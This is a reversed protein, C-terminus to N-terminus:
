KKLTVEKGIETTPDIFVLQKVKKESDSALLTAGTNHALEWEVNGEATFFVITSECGKLEKDLTEALLTLDPGGLGTERRKATGGKFPWVASGLKKDVSAVVSCPLPAVKIQQVPTLVIEKAVDNRAKFAKVRITAVGGTGLENILVAMDEVPVALKEKEVLVTVEKGSLPLGSVIKHLKEKAGPEAFSTWEGKIQVGGPKKITIIPLDQAPNASTTPTTTPPKPATATATASATPWDGNSSSCGSGVLLSTMSLFLPLVLTGTTRM